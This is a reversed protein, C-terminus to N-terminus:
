KEKPDKLISGKSLLGISTVKTNVKFLAGLFTKGTEWQM